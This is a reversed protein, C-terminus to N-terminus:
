RHLLGRVLHREQISELQDGPRRGPRLHLPGTVAGDTGSALIGMSADAGGNDAKFSYVKTDGGTPNAANLDMGAAYWGQVQLGASVSGNNYVTYDAANAALFAAVALSTTLVKKM